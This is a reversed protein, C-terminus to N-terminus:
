RLKLRMNCIVLYHDSNIVSGHFSITSSKHMISKLRHPTLIFDIQNNTHGNPSQWTAKRTDKQQHLTNALTFNHKTAFELLRIGRSNTKGLAFKGVVNNWEKNSDGVITIWDGQIILIDKKNTEAMTKEIEKYFINIYEDDYDSAPAYIHIITM